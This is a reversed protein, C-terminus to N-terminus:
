KIRFCSGEHAESETYLETGYKLGMDLQRDLIRRM